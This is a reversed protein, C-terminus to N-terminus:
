RPSTKLAGPSYLDVGGDGLYISISILKQIEGRARASVGSFARQQIADSSGRDLGHIVDKCAVEGKGKCKTCAAQSNGSTLFGVGRCQRCDVVQSHGCVKCLLKRQLAGTPTRDRLGSTDAGCDSLITDFSKSTLRKRAMNRVFDSVNAKELLPKAEPRRRQLYLDLGKALAELSRFRQQTRAAQLDQLQSMATQDQPNSLVTRRLRDIDSTNQSQASPATSIVLCLGCFFLINIRNNM